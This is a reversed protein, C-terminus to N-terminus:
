VSPHKPYPCIFDSVTGAMPLHGKWAAMRERMKSSIHTDTHESNDCHVNLLM